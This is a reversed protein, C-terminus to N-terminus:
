ILCVLMFITIALVAAELIAFISFSIINNKLTYTEVCVKAPDKPDYILMFKEHLKVRGSSYVDGMEQRVYAGDGYTFGFVPVRVGRGHSYSFDVIEGETRVGYKELRICERLSKAPFYTMAAFFGNAAVAVALGLGFFYGIGVLAAVISLAILIIKLIRKPNSYLCYIAPGAALFVMAVKEWHNEEVAFCVALYLAIVGIVTFLAGLMSKPNNILMKFFIGLLIVLLALVPLGILLLEGYENLFDGIKEM